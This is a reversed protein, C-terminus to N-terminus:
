RRGSVFVGVTQAQSRYSPALAGYPEVVNSITLAVEAKIKDCAVPGGPIAPLGSLDSPFNSNLTVNSKM